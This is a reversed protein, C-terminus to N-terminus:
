KDSIPLLADEAVPCYPSSIEAFTISSSFFDLWYVYTVSCKLNHRISQHIWFSLGYMKFSPCFIISLLLWNTFFWYPHVSRSTSIRQPRNQITSVVPRSRLFNQTFTSYSEEPCILILIYIWFRFPLIQSKTLLQPLSNFHFLNICATAKLPQKNTILNNILFYIYFVTESDSSIKTVM